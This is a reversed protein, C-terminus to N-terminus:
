PEDVVKVKWACESNIKLYHFGGDSYAWTSASKSMALDNVSIGNFDSGGDEFVQFNGPQGFAKCNFSYVLRWTSTVTFGPTNQIGSGAFTAVTHGRGAPPKSAPKTAAAPAPVSIASAPAPSNGHSSSAAIIAIVVVLLGMSSFAFVRLGRHRRGRRPPRGPPQQPQYPQQWQPPYPVQGYPQQQGYPPGYPQGQYPPQGQYQGPRPQGYQPQGQPYPPQGYSPQGYPQQQPYQPKGPRHWPDWPPQDSM